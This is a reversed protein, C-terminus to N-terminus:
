RLPTKGQCEPWGAATLTDVGGEAEGAAPEECDEPDDDVVVVEEEDDEEEKTMGSLALIIL